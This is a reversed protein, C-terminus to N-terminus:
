AAIDDNFIESVNVSFTSHYECSGDYYFGLLKKWKIVALAANLANLDAIQINTNYEDEMLDETGIRTDLHDYKNPAGTTVRVSGTLKDHASTVGMGCDIFPIGKELLFDFIIKRVPNKDVSVFVFQACQLKHVNTSDIREIHATVGKHMKSYMDAFYEVKKISQELQQLSAAGPSRFANHQQYTDDDFLHIESVPTKAILDLIYSGTGGLGVIAIKQNALKNNIAVINARSSSTDYYNFVGENDNDRVVKFVCATADKNIAQAESALIRVYTTIKEYYDIYGNKPKNSFSHNIIVEPALTQTNTGHKIATIVNGDKDCPEEGQFYIVHNSPRGTTSNNALTLESVLVGDKIQKTSNVYPVHHILLYGGRIQIDYGEDRLRKLDRSHDVLKQSM